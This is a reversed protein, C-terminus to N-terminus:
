RRPAVAKLIFDNVSIKIGAAENATNVQARLKAM